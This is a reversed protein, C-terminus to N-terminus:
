LWANTRRRAVSADLWCGVVGEGLISFGDLGVIGFEPSFVVIVLVNRAAADGTNRIKL